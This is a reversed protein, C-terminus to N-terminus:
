DVYRSGKIVEIYEERIQIVEQRLQETWPENLLRQQMRKLKLFSAALIIATTHNNMGLNIIEWNSLIQSACNAVNQCLEKQHESTIRTPYNASMYAYSHVASNEIGLTEVFSKMYNAASLISDLALADENSSYPMMQLEAGPEESAIKNLIEGKISSVQEWLSDISYGDFSGLYTKLSADLRNTFDVANEFNASSKKSGHVKERIFKKQKDARCVERKIFALVPISHDIAYDFEIETMSRGDDYSTGYRDGYIGIVLDCTSLEHLCEDKCYRETANFYEMAVVKGTTDTIRGVIGDLYHIAAQRVDKLDEYTSSLFIRM